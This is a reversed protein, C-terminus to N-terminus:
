ESRAESSRMRMKEGFFWFALPAPVGVGLAIFGLLSNGWGFGLADYMAPAFLPFGFGALSRLTVVASMASAAVATYADVCYTQSCQYSVITGTAFLFSGINPVIWHTRFQVSWGYIFLGIVVLLSSPFMMPVRFEPRGQGFGRTSKLHIYIKDNLRSAFVSALLFGLGLSLYNLGGVGPSESYVTTWVIPFTTLVLYITGYLYLQYLALAQIIPQTLLLYFPRKLARQILQPLPPTTQTPQLSLNDANGSERAEKALRAAKRALLIPAYTEQLAFVGAIQMLATYIAISWFVWRWTSYEAIFGGLIPGIAPGLLPGATYLGFAKGRKEAPWLDALVGPGIALPASGGLGAIFRFALLQGQTQAFGCALCFVLFFLYALYLVKTRGFVESLPGLFLPGIAYALVFISLLMSQGFGPAVHLDNGVQELAPAIMSSSVPSIFTFMAVVTTAIWKKRNSWNKPNEPDDPGDWGITKIREIPQAITGKEEDVLTNVSEARDRPRPRPSDGDHLDNCSTDLPVITQTTQPFTINMQQQLSESQM